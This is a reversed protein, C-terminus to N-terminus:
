SRVGVPQYQDTLLQRLTALVSSVALHPITLLWQVLPRWRTIGTDATLDLQIPYTASTAM